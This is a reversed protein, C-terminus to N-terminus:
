TNPNILSAGSQGQQSLLIKAVRIHNNASAMHLATNFSMNDDRYNVDVPPDRVEMMELVDDAEGLRASYM